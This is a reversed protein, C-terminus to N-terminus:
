MKIWDATIYHTNMVAPIIWGWVRICNASPILILMWMQPWLECDSFPPHQSWTPAVFASTLSPPLPLNVSLSFLMQWFSCLSNGLELRLVLSASSLFLYWVKLSLSGATLDLLACPTVRHGSGAGAPLSLSSCLLAVLFLQVCDLCRPPLSVWFCLRGAILTFCSIFSTASLSLPSSTGTLHIDLLCLLPNCVSYMFLPSITYYLWFCYYHM